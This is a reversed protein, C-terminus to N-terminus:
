WLRFRRDLPTYPMRAAFTKPESIALFVEKLKAVLISIFVERKSGYTLKYFYKDKLSRVLLVFYVTCMKMSCTFGSLM